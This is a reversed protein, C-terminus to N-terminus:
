EQWRQTALIREFRAAAQLADGPGEVTFYAILRSSGLLYQLLYREGGAAEKRSVSSFQVRKDPRPTEGVPRVVQSSRGAAIGPMEDRAFNRIVSWHQAVVEAPAGPHLVRYQAIVSEGDPGRGEARLGSRQFRWPPPFELDLTGLHLLLPEQASAVCTVLAFAFAAALQRM